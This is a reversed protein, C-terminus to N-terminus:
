RSRGHECDDCGQDSDCDTCDPQPYPEPRHARRPKPEGLVLTSREERVGLPLGLRRPPLGLDFGALVGHLQPRGPSRSGPTARESPWPRPARQLLLLSLELRLALLEGPALLADRIALDMRLLKLLLELGTTVLHEALELAYASERKALRARLQELPRLIEDAVLEGAGHPLELLLRPGIRLPLGAREDRVCELSDGRAVGGLGGHADDLEGGVVHLASDDAALSPVDAGELM